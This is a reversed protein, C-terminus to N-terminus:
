RGILRACNGGAVKDRDAEPLGGLLEALYDHADLGVSRVHPFDSGWLVTGAGLAKMTDVRFLNLGAFLWCRGSRGQDTPQWSDLVNSFNHEARTILARDLAVDNVDHQAVVNQMLRLSPNAEWDSQLLSVDQETLLADNDTAATTTSM